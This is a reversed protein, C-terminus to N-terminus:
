NYTKPSHNANHCELWCEGANVGNDIWTPAQYPETPDCPPTGGGKDRICDAVVIGDSVWLFNMLRDMAHSGHPDHCIICSAGRSQIHSSHSGFTVDALLVGQDHCKYCLAYFAMNNPPDTDFTYQQTLLGEWFSGHPGNPGTGGAAESNDSNHCDTCYILTTTSNQGTGLTSSDITPVNNNNALNNSEIPHYSVLGATGGVVRDRINRDIEIGGLLPDGSVMDVRIMGRTDAAGCRGTGCTNQGTRGHCKFCLEYQNTVSATPLGNVDIGTVGQIMATAAPATAHPAAINNPNFSIMPLAGPTVTHPNHCDMCEVHLPMTAPDEVKTADHLGAYAVDAVPHLGGNPSPLNAFDGQIDTGPGDADHCGYCTDEENKALLREPNAAASNHPTHCGLCANGAVTPAVWEPRRNDLDAAAVTAVSTAHTSAVWDTKVHCTTCLTGDATTLRLFPALDKEHPDHCTTCQLQPQGAVDELPLSIGAPNALEPNLGLLAADYAFSIPHDDSLDTTLHARGTLFVTAMDNGAPANQLAGLAVTGDHCALCLRSTGTPQGPSAALTTSSYPTYTVASTPLHNWLQADPLANHPTHCFVCVEDVTSSAFTRTVGAAPTSSLNHRTNTVDQAARADPAALIFAIGLILSFRKM